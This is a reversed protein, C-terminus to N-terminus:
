GFFKELEAVLAEPQEEAIFHGSDEIGSYRIDNAKGEMMPRLFDAGQNAIALAPM